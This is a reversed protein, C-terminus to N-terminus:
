APDPEVTRAAALMPRVASPMSDSSRYMSRARARNGRGPRKENYLALCHAILWPDDLGQHDHLRWRVRPFGVVLGLRVPEGLVSEIGM